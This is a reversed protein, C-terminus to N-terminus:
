RDNAPYRANLWSPLSEGRWRMIAVRGFKRDFRRWITRPHPLEISREKATEQLRRICEAWTPREPRLYDRAIMNLITENIDASRGGGRFGPTLYALWDHRSVGEVSGLWIWITSKGIEELRALAGVADTKTMGAAILREIQDLIQVRKMGREKAAGSQRDFFEWQKERTQKTAL